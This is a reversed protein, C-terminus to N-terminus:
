VLGDMPSRVICGKGMVHLYVMTTRVDKHGLLEQVTRIDYGDELLHTAFSHRFTHCGAHKVVGASRIAAKVARQLATEHLHHRKPGDAAWRPDVCIKRAPFIFYWGWEFPAKPYKKSLAGPLSVGIGNAVDERHLEAVWALHTKLSESVSRPLMVVRDKNGKGERVTVTMREFEIDKVRLQLCENLRLGCGYLLSGMLLEAAYLKSLITQVESRTFVEPLRKPKKARVADIRGLDKPIVNKYLFLLANFAQNQTSAAVNRETALYTLFAEIEPTGMDSLPRRNHYFSFRKVWDCYTDATKQSYNKVRCTNRILDLVRPKKQAQENTSHLTQNVAQSQMVEEKRYTLSLKIHTIPQM